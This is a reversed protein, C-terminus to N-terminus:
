RVAADLNGRVARVLEASTTMRTTGMAPALAPNGDLTPDPVRHRFSGHVSKAGTTQVIRAVNAPTIGGAPMVDIRGTAACTLERLREIGAEATPQGGSTQIREFGYTVLEDLAVRWDPVFDFARHFVARGEVAQLLLFCRVIDIRNVGDAVRLLGFVIGDAGHGLFWEADRRMAEYEVDSYTFGGPRPRLLVYVPVAVAERVALFTGPSPTLGGVELGGCLELRDAGNEVALAAEEASSVCVELTVRTM